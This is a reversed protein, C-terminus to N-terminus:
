QDQILIHSYLFKYYYHSVESEVDRFTKIGGGGNNILPLSM